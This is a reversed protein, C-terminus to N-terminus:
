VYLEPLFDRFSIGLKKCYIMIEQLTAKEKQKELKTIVQKDLGTIAAKEKLSPKNIHIKTTPLNRLEQLSMNQITEDQHLLEEDEEEEKDIPYRGDNKFIFTSNENFKKLEDLSMNQIIEAQRIMEEDEEEEEVIPFRGDNKFIVPWDKTIKRLENLPMKQIFDAMEEKNKFKKPLKM